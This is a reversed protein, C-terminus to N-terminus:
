IGNKKRRHHVPYFYLKVESCKTANPVKQAACVIIIKLSKAM